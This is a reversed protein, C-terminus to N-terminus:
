GARGCALDRFDFYAKLVKQAELISDHPGRWGKHRESNHYIIDWDEVIAVSEFSLTSSEQQKHTRIGLILLLGSFDFV